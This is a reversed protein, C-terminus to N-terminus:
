RRTSKRHEPGSLKVVGTCAPPGDADIAGCELEVQGPVNGCGLFLRDVGRMARAWHSSNPSTASRWNSTRGSSTRQRAHIGSTPALRSAPSTYHGSSRPAWM